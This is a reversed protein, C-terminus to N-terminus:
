FNENNVFSIERKIGVVQFHDREVLTYKMLAVGKLGMHSNLRSLIQSSGLEKLSDQQGKKVEDRNKNIFISTKFGNVRLNM